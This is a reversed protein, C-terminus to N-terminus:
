LWFYKKENKGLTHSARICLVSMLVYSVIRVKVIYLLDQNKEWEMGDKEIGKWKFLFMPWSGSM